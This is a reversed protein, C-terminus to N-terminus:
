RTGPRARRSRRTTGAWRAPGDGDALEDAAALDVALTDLAGLDNM